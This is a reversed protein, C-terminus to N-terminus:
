MNPISEVAPIESGTDSTVTWDGGSTSDLKMGAFPRQKVSDDLGATRSVRLTQLAKRPPRCLKEHLTLIERKQLSHFTEEFFSTSLSSIWQQVAAQPFEDSFLKVTFWETKILKRKRKKLWIMVSLLFGGLGHKMVFMPADHNFQRIWMRVM